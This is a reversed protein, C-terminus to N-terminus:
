SSRLWGLNLVVKQEEGGREAQAGIPSTDDATSYAAAAYECGRRTFIKSWVACDLVTPGPTTISAAATQTQLRHIAAFLRPRLVLRHGPVLFVRFYTAVAIGLAVM